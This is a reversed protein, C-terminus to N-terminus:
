LVWLRKYGSYHLIYVDAFRMYLLAIALVVVLGLCATLFKGKLVYRPVLFYNLTYVFIMHGPLFGLSNGVTIWPSEGRNFVFCFFLTVPAWFLVHRLAQNHSLRNIFIAYM